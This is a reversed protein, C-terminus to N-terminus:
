SRVHRVLALCIGEYQAQLEEVEARHVKEADQLMEIYKEM